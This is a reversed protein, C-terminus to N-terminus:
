DQDHRRRAGRRPLRGHGAHLSRAGRPVTPPSGSFDDQGDRWGRENTERPFRGHFAAEVEVLDTPWGGHLILPVTWKSRDITYVLHRIPHVVPIFSDNGALYRYLFGKHFRHGCTRV